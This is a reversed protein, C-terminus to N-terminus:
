LRWGISQLVQAILDAQQHLGMDRLEDVLLPWPPMVSMYPTSDPGTYMGGGPGTYLGGGPGSYLGGSPGTYLGGGPGLYAAGGPGIYLGGGPGRYSGGGPGSYMGGGPVTYAGGGPGTYMGGGPGTYAGGGPGTYMNRVWKTLIMLPDRRNVELPINLVTLRLADTEIPAMVSECTSEAYHRQELEVCITDVEVRNTIVSCLPM